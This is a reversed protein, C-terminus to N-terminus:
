SLPHIKLCSKRLSAMITRLVFISNVAEKIKELSVFLAKRRTKELWKGFRYISRQFLFCVFVLVTIVTAVSYTPTEVLSRGQRIM